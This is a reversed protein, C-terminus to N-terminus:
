TDKNLSDINKGVYLDVCLQMVCKLIILYENISKILNLACIQLLFFLFSISINNKKNRKEDCSLRVLLVFFSLSHPLTLSLIFAIWMNNTYFTLFFWHNKHFIKMPTYLKKATSVNFKINSTIIHTTPPFNTMSWCSNKMKIQM